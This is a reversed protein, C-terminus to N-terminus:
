DGKLDVIIQSISTELMWDWTQRTYAVLGMVIDDVIKDAIGYVNRRITQELMDKDNLELAKDYAVLRGYFGEMLRKLHRTIKLESVKMSRISEEIDAVVWNCLSQSLEPCMEVENPWPFKLRRLMLALHLALIEFRGQPTDPIQYDVFFIYQRAQSTVSAYLDAALDTMKPQTKNLIKMIM